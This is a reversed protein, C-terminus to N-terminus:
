FVVTMDASCTSSAAECVKYTYTAGGKAGIADTYAGDNATTSIVNSDRYIDVQNSTAGSWSLDVTHKGKVKYGNATLTIGTSGGGGGGGGTGGALLDVAAQAQVLGYGYSNDRGAAGLDEASADLADRIQQNTANPYYGWVLAAVASVHPTAMSTGNYYDYGSAPAIFQSTLTGTIGISTAVIAQGDAQSLSIAPISSTNGAGLTGAFGGAVNNYIVVSSAGGTQANNVKDFFSVSGRECMVLMGNWSGVSDCLGGDVVVGSAVGDASFEIQSGTYTSGGVAVEAVTKFPLTSLVSVGPAAIEVQSNKQSFDAVLKNEDIAAVSMVSDYSAPYSLSTTGDNGAAAISLIGQNYASQFANKESPGRGKPGGLSMSVVDAGANVCEQLANILDSSYAWACDVGNFVKVIHLNIHSNPLVGVVGLQNGSIASITGAVHSGHGCTDENWNGSGPLNTGAVGTDSLDEHAMQYGSDIICVKPASPGGLMGAAQVMNIGYPTTEAMPYRPPDDDVAIVNPNHMIGNIAQEPLRVAASKLAPFDYVVSGGATGIQEQITTQDYNKYTVIYRGQTANGHGNGAALATGGLTLALASTALITRLRVQIM